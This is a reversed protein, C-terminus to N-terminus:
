QDHMKFGQFEKRSLFDASVHTFIQVEYKAVNVVEYTYVASM